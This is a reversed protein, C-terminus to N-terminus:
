TQRPRTLLVLVITGGAFALAVVFRMWFGFEEGSKIALATVGLLAFALFAFGTENNKRFAEAVIAGILAAGTVIVLGLVVSDLLINEKGQPPKTSSHLISGIGIYHM